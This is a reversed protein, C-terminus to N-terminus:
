WAVGVREGAFRVRRFGCRDRPLPPLFREPQRTLTIGSFDKVANGSPTTWGSAVHPVGEPNTRRPRSAGPHAGQSRSGPSHHTVGEPCLDDRRPTTEPQRTVAEGETAATGRRTEIGGLRPTQRKVPPQQLLLLPSPSSPTPSGAKRVCVCRNIM